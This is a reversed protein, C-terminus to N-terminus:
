EFIDITTSLQALLQKTDRWPDGNSGPYIIKRADEWEKSSPCCAKIRGKPRIFDSCHVLKGKSKGPMKQQKTISDLWISKKYNYRYFCSKNYFYFVHQKVGLPLLPYIPDWTGDSKKDYQITYGLLEKVKPLFVEQRYRIVDERKHRDV